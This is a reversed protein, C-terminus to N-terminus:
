KEALWRLMYGGGHRGDSSGIRLKTMLMMDRLALITKKVAHITSGVIEAIQRGTLAMDQNRRLVDMVRAGLLTLRFDKGDIVMVGSVVRVILRETTPAGCTPCRM